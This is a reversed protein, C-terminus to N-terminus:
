QMFSWDELSKVEDRHSEFQRWLDGADNRVAARLTCDKVDNRAGVFGDVVDRLQRNLGADFAVIGAETNYYSSRYNFNSSHIIVIDNDIRVFKAHLLTSKAPGNACPKGVESAGPTWTYVAVGDAALRALVELTALWGKEGYNHHTESSTIVRVRVGRRAASGLAESLERPLTAYPTVLDLERRAAAVLRLLVGLTPARDFVFPNDYLVLARVNGARRKLPPFFGDAFYHDLPSHGPRVKGFYGTRWLNRAEAYLLEQPRTSNHALNWHGMLVWTKLFYMQLEQVAPGEVAVDLDTWYNEPDFYEDGINRGGFIARVGDVILIKDHQRAAYIPTAVWTGPNFFRVQAGAKRLQRKVVGLWDHSPLFTVRDLEVYATFQPDAEKKRRIISCVEGLYRMGAAGLRWIPVSFFIHHRASRILELREEYARQPDLLLRISNGETLMAHGLREIEAMKPPEQAARAQLGNCAMFVAM